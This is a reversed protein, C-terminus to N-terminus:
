ACEPTRMGVGARPAGYSGRVELLLQQAEQAQQLWRRRQMAEAQLRRMASELQQVRAAVDCAAFHGDQVLKHGTSMVERTLAEHSSM